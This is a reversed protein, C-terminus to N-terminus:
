QCGKRRADHLITDIKQLYNRAHKAEDIDPNLQVVKAYHARATLLYDCRGPDANFLDRHINATIFHAMVDDPGYKLARECSERARLPNGLREECLCVGLCGASRESEYALRRDPHSRRGLHLGIFHFALWQYAPTSFNTLRLFARYNDRAEEYLPAWREREKAPISAAVQRLADAKWLHAQDNSARLELAKDAAKICLDWIGKDWYARAILSYTEDSTPALRMADSLQRIAEDPDGNEILVAAYQIRADVFSPDLDIARKYADISAREESLLQNVQGLDFAARSFSPDESLARLFLDRAKRLDGATQSRRVPAINAPTLASRHTFLFREGDAAFGLAAKKIQRVYRIRLSVTVEEGPVVMVEKRDPEYGEKVGEVSHLGSSLGSLSLPWTKSVKGILNGDMYVQVDDMNVEVVASGVMSPSTAVGLCGHSVGLAMEPEYDGRDSPTQFVHRDRAYRQVNSRVYEVLEHATIVGDCPDNDANGKLGQVVFYTFVGFGTSLMPDEYSKERATTATLTLFSKPLDQLQADMLESTGDAFIKGSHCADTLLVKWHAKVRTALVDGLIDMPYATDELHSPDVDWAALYGRGSKVFGHGAFYVVVRDAPQAVSPLWAELEQRINSITAAKGKLLHVNESLFAGGEQSILVRYMAEADSEPFQLNGPAALQQYSSIGIVVAYGRPIAIAEAKGPDGVPKVELDRGSVRDQRRAQSLPQACLLVASLLILILCIM